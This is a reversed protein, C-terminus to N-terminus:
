AAWSSAPVRTFREGSAADPLLPTRDTGWLYSAEVTGSVYHTALPGADAFVAEGNEDFRAVVVDINALYDM